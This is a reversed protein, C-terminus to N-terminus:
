VPRPRRCLSHTKSTARTGKPGALAGALVLSLEAIERPDVAHSAADLPRRLAAPDPVASANPSSLPLDLASGALGLPCIQAAGSSPAAYTATSYFLVDGCAPLPALALLARFHHRSGTPAMISVGLLYGPM